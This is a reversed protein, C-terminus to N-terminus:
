GKKKSEIKKDTNKEPVSMCAAAVGLEIDQKSLDVAACLPCKYDPTNYIIGCKDCRYVPGEYQKAEKGM